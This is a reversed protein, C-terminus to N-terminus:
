RISTECPIKLVCPRRQLVNEIDDLKESHKDQLKEINNLRSDHQVQKIAVGKLELSLDKLTVWIASLLLLGISGVGSILWMQMSESM